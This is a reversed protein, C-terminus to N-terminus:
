GKTKLRKVSRILREYGSNSLPLRNNKEIIVHEKSFSSMHCINIYFSRHILIFLPSNLQQAFSKITSSITFTDKLTKIIICGKDAKVFLIESISVKYYSGKKLIYIHDGILSTEKEEGAFYIKRNALNVIQSGVESFNPNGIDLIVINSISETLARFAQKKSTATVINNCGLDKLQAVIKELVGIDDEFIFINSQM